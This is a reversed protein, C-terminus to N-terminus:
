LEESFREYSNKSIIKSGKVYIQTTSLNSHGAIQSIGLIDAGNNALDTLRSHRISHPSYEKGIYLKTLQKMRDILYKEQRKYLKGDPMKFVFLKDMENGKVRLKNLLSVTKNTLFCTRIKSGKGLVRIEAGISENGEIFTIDKWRINLFESERMASDYLFGLILKWEDDISDYLLKMDSLPIAKEGLMRQSTLVSARKKPSILLSIEDKSKGLFELYLKFASKVYINRQKDIIENMCNIMDSTKKFKNFEDLHREITNVYLFITKPLFKEGNSKRNKELFKKFEM